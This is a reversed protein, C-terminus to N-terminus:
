ELDPGDKREDTGWKRLAGEKLRIHDFVCMRGLKANPTVRLYAVGVFFLGFCTLFLTLNNKLRTPM